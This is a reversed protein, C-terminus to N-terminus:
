PGASFFARVATATAESVNLTGGFTGSGLVVIEGDANIVTFAQAGTILTGETTLAGGAEAAAAHSAIPAMVSDSVVQGNVVVGIASEGNALVVTGGGATTGTGAAASSIIGGSAVITAGASVGLAAEIYPTAAPNQPTNVSYMTNWIQNIQDDSLQLTSLDYLGVGLLKGIGTVTNNVGNGFLEWLGPPCLGLLDLDNVPDNAVFAFLNIGGNEGVPDRNLWRQVSPDYYRHAYCILGSALHLEKSSARYLNASAMPGSQSITNGYPDYVYKAVVAQSPNILCTVNGNGDAHYYCTAAPAGTVWLEQDSRALLGGTGGAGELSGSMDQGRTYTVLPLNSGNREEIVLDRDYVYRVEMKLTWTSLTSNWTYERRIRRRMGGDYAFESRWSNSVTISTLQNEDDYELYRYGDNLLNGNADYSFNVGASLSVTVANTDRRCYADEAVATFANSGNTLAFGERAFTYDSYINAPLSNVLVNTAASSTSGSVTLTGSNSVTTLENLSNVNYMQLLGNNTRWQLNGAPDYAYGFQELLRNTTGGYEKGSATRLEGSLDYGYDIYNAATFGQQTRQNAQNYSYSHSNLVAGSSNRLETSVLRAVSDYRNTIIATNPLSIQQVLTGESASAACSYAYRFTGAPSSISSVRRAADYSYGQAWPSGNPTQLTLSARLRNTYTYSVTDDDWPGDESLVHGDADYTYRTTGIADVRTVLHNLADYTMHEPAKLPYVINTLNGIPDYGYTTTGKAPTWRSILRSNDDYGYRLISNGLADLKNTVRGYLDYVFTTTQGKGDTMTLLDGAGDYTFSNTRVGACIEDTKRGLADYVYDFVNSGIQNTYGTLGAIDPSYGFHEVGGDPYSRTLIRSLSDYTISTVVGNIDVQNTARDLADYINGFVRGFANSSAIALGQNNFWNTTSTSLDTINTVQGLLNNNYVLAYGDPGIEDILDGDNDYTYRTVQQVATGYANTVGELEGCICYDYLTIVGNANTEAIKRRAADYGYSTVFGLRDQVQVLDLKDYSNTIFTGDPYDVRILRQLPDWTFTQTLGRSDTQTLRLDNTYTYSNTSYAVPVGGIIAYQETTQLRGCGPETAYYTNTTILGTPSIVSVLRQTNDYIFTTIQNAVDINTVVQHYANYANSVTQVGLADTAALLDIGNSAYTFTNTRLADSAGSSYTEIRRTPKGNINRETRVFRTSGDPLVKAISLSLSNTGQYEPDTQGAYDLWTIQGTLTGDPSPARELSASPSINTQVQGAFLVVSGILYHRMRSVRYDSATLASINTTSLLAYQRRGWHFINGCDLNTNDFTNAFPETSPVDSTAYYSPIGPANNTYVWLQCGGDPEMVRISRGFPPANTGTPDETYQFRTTGYPTILNTAYGNDDYVFSSSLGAVDTLNTLFGNDDYKLTIHRGYPDSVESILNTSFPNSSVYTLTNTLGDADVIYALRVAPTTTAYPLYELHTTYGAPDRRESLFAEPVGATNTLIFAYIHETGDPYSVTFGNTMDGTLTGRSYYDTSYTTTGATNTGYFSCQGGGPQNLDYAPYASSSQWDPTLYALWSFDWNKGSSFLNPAYGADAERQNYNLRFAVRPGISPQYGLPEDMLWLGLTPESVGWTPMGCPPLGQGGTPTSTTSTPQTVPPTASPPTAPPPVVPPPPPPPTDPPTCPPTTPPPVRDHRKPIVNGNCDLDATIESGLDAHLLYADPHTEGSPVFVNVIRIGDYIYLPQASEHPGITLSLPEYDPYWYGFSHYYYGITIPCDSNNYLTLQAPCDLAGFLLLISLSFLRRLGRWQDAWGRAGRPQHSETLGFIDPVDKTISGIKSLESDTM